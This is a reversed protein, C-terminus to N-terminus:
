ERPSSSSVKEEEEDKVPKENASDQTTDTQLAATQNTLNLEFDNADFYDFMTQYKMLQIQLYQNTEDHYAILYNIAEFLSTLSKCNDEKELLFEKKSFVQVLYMM